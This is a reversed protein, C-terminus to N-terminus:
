LNNVVLIFSGVIFTSKDEQIYLRASVMALM